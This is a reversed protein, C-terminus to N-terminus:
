PRSGESGYAVQTWNVLHLTDVYVPVARPNLLHGWSPTKAVRIQDGYTLTGFGGREYAGSHSRYGADLLQKRNTAISPNMRLAQELGLQLEVATRQVFDKLPQSVDGAALATFKEINAAGFDLLYDSRKDAKYSQPAAEWRFQYYYKTGITWQPVPIYDANPQAERARRAEQQVRIMMPDAPRWLIADSEANGILSVSDQPPAPAPEPALLADLEVQAGVEFLGSPDNYFIPNNRAYAYRNLTQPDDLLPAAPDPSIFRALAANYYRAGYFYLGTEADLEKSTFKYKAAAAGSEGYPRYSIREVLAGAGDTVVRTSDLHDAHHYRIAGTSEILAIRKEGAFV